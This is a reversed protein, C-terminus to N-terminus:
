WPVATLLSASHMKCPSPETWNRGHIAGSEYDSDCPEHRLSIKRPTLTQNVVRARGFAAAASAAAASDAPDAVDVWEKQQSRTASTLLRLDESEIAGQRFAEKIKPHLGAIALWQKVRLETVGFTAAIEEVKRGQKLLRAFSEYEQLEDMPEGAVNEILSAEMAGTDDGVATVACPLLVEDPAVGKEEAAKSAAFYRRRGAIIEFGEGNPLM